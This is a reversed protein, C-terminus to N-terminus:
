TLDLSLSVLGEVPRFGLDRYLGLAGDNDPETTLSLRTAGAALAADRVARVLAAAVGLRRSAPIVFLDRLQWFQGLALSAPAVHATALGVPPAGSRCATYVSLVESGVMETLWGYSRGDAGPRAGYHQRYQDFLVAATALDGDSTCAMVQWADTGRM